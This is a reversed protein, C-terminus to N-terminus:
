FVFWLPYTFYVSDVLSICIVSQSCKQVSRTHPERNTQELRESLSLDLAPFFFGWFVPFHKSFALLERDTQFTPITM